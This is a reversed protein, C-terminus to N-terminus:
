QFILESGNQVVGVSVGDDYVQAIHLNSNVQEPFVWIMTNPVSTDNFAVGTSTDSVLHETTAQVARLEGACVTTDDLDISESSTAALTNDVTCDINDTDTSFVPKASTEICADASQEHRVTINQNFLGHRTTASLVGGYLSGTVIADYQHKGLKALADTIRSADDISVTPRANHRGLEAIADLAAQMDHVSVPEIANRSLSEGHASLAKHLEAIEIQSALRHDGIRGIADLVAIDEDILVNHVYRGNLIEGHADWARTFSDVLVNYGAMHRMLEAPPALARHQTLIRVLEDDKCRLIEAILDRIGNDAYVVTQDVADRRMSEAHLANFVSLISKSDYSETALRSLLLANASTFSDIIELRHDGENYSTMNGPVSMLRNLIQEGDVHSDLYAWYRQLFLPAKWVTKDNLYIHKIPTTGQFIEYINM